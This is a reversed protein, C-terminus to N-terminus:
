VVLEESIMEVPPMPFDATIEFGAQVLLRALAEKHPVWKDVGMLEFLVDLELAGEIDESCGSHHVFWEGPTGWLKGHVHSERKIEHSM